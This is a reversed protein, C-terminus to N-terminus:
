KKRLAAFAAGGALFLITSVPEPVPNLKFNTQGKFSEWNCCTEGGLRGSVDKLLASADVTWEGPQKISDWYAKNFSIWLGNTTGFKMKETSDSPNGDWSWTSTTISSGIKELPDIGGFFSVYLWPQENWGFETKSLAPVVGPKDTMWVRYYDNVEWAFARSCSFLCFLIFLPCILKKV